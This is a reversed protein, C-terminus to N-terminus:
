TTALRGSMRCSPACTRTWCRCAAATATRCRTAWSALQGAEPRHRQHGHRMRHHIGLRAGAGPPPPRTRGARGARQPDARDRHRQRQRRRHGPEPLGHVPDRRRRDRGRRARTGRGSDGPDLPSLDHGLARRGHPARHARLGDLHIWWRRHRRQKGVWVDKQGLNVDELFQYGSVVGNLHKARFASNRRLRAAPRSSCRTTSARGSRCFSIDKGIETNYHIDIGLDLIQEVEEMIVDRPLRWEPVGVWMVGGPVPYREFITVTYGKRALQRASTLGNVGAGIIAVTLGNPPPIRAGPRTVSLRGRRAESLLHRDPCRSGQPPLRGRVPPRVHPRSLRPLCQQERNLEYSDSYRGDAILAIYRSIDTHSPCATMCPINDSFWQADGTSIRYRKGTRETIPHSSPPTSSRLCGSAGRTRSRSISLGARRDRPQGTRGTALGVETSDMPRFRDAPPAARRANMRRRSGM